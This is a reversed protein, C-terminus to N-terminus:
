HMVSTWVDCGFTVRQVHGGINGLRRDAVIIARHRREPTMDVFGPTRGHKKDVTTAKTEAELM